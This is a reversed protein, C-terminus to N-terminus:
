TQRAVDGEWTAFPGGGASRPSTTVTVEAVDDVGITADGVVGACRRQVAPAESGPGVSQWAVFRHPMTV